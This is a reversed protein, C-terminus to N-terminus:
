HRLFLRLLMSIIGVIFALTKETETRDQAGIRNGNRTQRYTLVKGIEGLMGFNNSKGSSLISKIEQQFKKDEETLSRKSKAKKEEQWSKFSTAEGRNMWFGSCSQCYEAELQKPFNYDKFIELKVSCKPCLNNGKGLFSNKQLKDTNISEIKEIERKPVSQSEFNDFWIGGCTFCQDLVIKAGYHGTTFVEKLKGGCDPCKM